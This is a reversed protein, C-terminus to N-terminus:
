APVGHSLQPRTMRAVAFAAYAAILSLVAAAVIVPPWGAQAAIGEGLMWAGIVSIAAATVLPAYAALRDFHPRRMLWGASRVVAIGLITLTLALGVSFAVILVLGYGIRHLYIAALLAVFAAPCPAVNGAAAAVLAARFSLPASGAIAHSRAHAEDDLDGHDHALGQAHARDHAQLAARAIEADTRPRARQALTKGLARAGLGAVFVGSVIAIWPYVADPLFYHTLCLALVGFALVGTTHAITLAAALIAAQSITARAGVLSIALLTKGHGPELAHLAGLGVALLLAGILILPDSLDRKLVDSLDNMRALSPADPAAVAEDVDKVALVGAASRTISVATRDTASRLLANPYARLENTSERAPAVVVDRWGLRGALTADKYRLTHPGPTLAALYDATFYLIPLGGAGPRLVVSSQIAKLSLPKADSTLLLQPAIETAHSAAWSALVAHSPRAEPDLSRLVAYTPIEADDLVYHVLVDSSQITLRTLHNTTINGLPHADVIGMALLSLIAALLSARLFQM